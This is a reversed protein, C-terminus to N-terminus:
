DVYSFDNLCSASNMPLWSRVCGRMEAKLQLRSFEIVCCANSRWVVHHRISVTSGDSTSQRYIGSQRSIGCSALNRSAGGFSLLNPVIVVCSGFLTPQTLSGTVRPVDDSNYVQIDVIMMHM